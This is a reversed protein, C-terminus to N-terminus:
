KDMTNNVRHRLHVDEKIAFLKWIIKNNMFVECLQSPKLSRYYIMIREGCQTSGESALRASVSVCARARVCVRACVCARVCM